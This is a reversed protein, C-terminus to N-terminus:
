SSIVFDEIPVETNQGIWHLAFIVATEVSSVKRRFSLGRASAIEDFNKSVLRVEIDGDTSTDIKIVPKDGYCIEVPLRALTNDM